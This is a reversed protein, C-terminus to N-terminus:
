RRSMGNTYMVVYLLGSRWRMAALINVANYEHCAVGGKKVFCFSGPM